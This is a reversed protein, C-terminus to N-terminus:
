AAGVDFRISALTVRNGGRQRADGLASECAAWLEDQTQATHPFSAVGMSVTFGVERGEHDFVMFRTSTTGQDIAGVFRPAVSQDVMRTLTSM